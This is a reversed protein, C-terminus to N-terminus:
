ARSSTAAVHLTTRCERRIGSGMALQLGSDTGRRARRSQMSPKRRRPWATSMAAASWSAPYRAAHDIRDLQHHASGRLALLQCLVATGAVRLLSRRDLSAVIFYKSM